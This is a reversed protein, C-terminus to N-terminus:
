DAKKIKLVVYDEKPCKIVYVIKYDQDNLAHTIPHGDDEVAQFRIYDGSHFQRGNELIEFTNFGILISDAFKSLLKLIHTM